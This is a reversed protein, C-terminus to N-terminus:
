PLARGNSGPVGSCITVWVQGPGAPIWNADPAITRIHQTNAESTHLHYGLREAEEVIRPLKAEELLMSVREATSHLDEAPEAGPEPVDTM